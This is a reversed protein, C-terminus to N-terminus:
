KKINKDLWKKFVKMAKLMDETQHPHHKARYYMTLIVQKQYNLPKNKIINVTHIAIEKNKFGLGKKSTKPHYDSFLSINKKNIKKTIQSLLELPKIIKNSDYIKKTMNYVIIKFNIKSSIYKKMIIGNEEFDKKHKEFSKKFNKYNKNEKSNSILLILNYKGIYKNFKEM